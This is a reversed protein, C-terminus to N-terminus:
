ATYCGIGCVAITTDRRGLAAIVELITRLALPEGCGPCLSHEGSLLLDPKTFTKRLGAPETQM